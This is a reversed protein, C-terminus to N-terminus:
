ADNPIPARKTTSCDLKSFRGLPTQTHNVGAYVTYMAPIPQEEPLKNKRWGLVISCFFFCLVSAISGYGSGIRGQEVANM